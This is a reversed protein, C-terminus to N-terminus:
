KILLNTNFYDAFSIYKATIANSISMNEQHIKRASNQTETKRSVIDKNYEGIQDQIIVLHDHLEKYSPNSV